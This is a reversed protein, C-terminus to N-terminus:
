QYRVEYTMRNASLAIWVPRDTGKTLSVRSVSTEAVPVGDPSFFIAFQKSGTASPKSGTPVDLKIDKALAFDEAKADNDSYGPQQELGYAGGQPDLWLMMPIGESVARSQGYRTLALFRQVESDLSRGGFFQMLSPVVLSITVTLIAMVLILEVLTFADRPRGTRPGGTGDSRKNGTGSM